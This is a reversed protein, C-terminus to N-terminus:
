EARKRKGKAGKRPPWEFGEPYPVGEHQRKFVAEAAKEACSPKCFSGELAVSEFTAKCRKQSRESCGPLGFGNCGGHTCSSRGGKSRELQEVNGGHKKCRFLGTTKNASYGAAADCYCGKAFNWHNCAKMGNGSRKFVRKDKEAQVAQEDM